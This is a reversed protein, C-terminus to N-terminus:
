SFGVFLRRLGVLRLFSGFDDSFLFRHGGRYRRVAEGPACRLLSSLAGRQYQIMDICMSLLLFRQLVEINM